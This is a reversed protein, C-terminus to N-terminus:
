VGVTKRAAPVAVPKYVAGIVACAALWEFFGAAATVLALRRGINLIAYNVGAVYGIVFVGVLVGFRLGEVVGPGGDYGKAYIFAVAIMAVFIGLFMLPLYAPGADNPRYVGPYRGFENTLLTGYVLFGYVADVVTAAAAAAVLRGYNM